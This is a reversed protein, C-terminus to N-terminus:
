ADTEFLAVLERGVGVADTVDRGGVVTGAAMETKEELFHDHFDGVADDFAAAFVEFGGGDARRLVSTSAADQRKGVILFRRSAAEVKLHYRRGGARGKVFKTM